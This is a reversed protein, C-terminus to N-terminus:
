SFRRYDWLYQSPNRNVMTEISRNLYCASHYDDSTIVQRDIAEITLQYDSTSLNRTVAAIYIDCDFKLALNKVLLSTAVSQGFFPATISEANKAPNQDPLIMCAANNKLGRFLKRLGAIGVPVLTAGNRTRSNYIYRDIKPNRAPKYLSYLDGQGALWLNLMEWSGHHPAIIIRPRNKIAFSQPINIITIKKLVEDIPRNWIFALELFSICTHHLSREILSKQESSSKDPFCLLINQRTQRSLQNRTYAVIVALWGALKFLCWTPCHSMLRYLHEM